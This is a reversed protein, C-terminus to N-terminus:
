TPLKAIGAMSDRVTDAAATLSSREEDLIATFIKRCEGPDAATGPQNPDELLIGVLREAGDLRGWLYDNERFARDFFAAFHFLGTGKLKKGGDSEILTADYPSVRVVEVHDRENVDQLAQVPFVLIDWFPFGLYRVLLDVIVSRNWKASRSMLDAYLAQELVAVHRRVAEGVTRRLQDLDAYHYSAYATDRNRAATRVEDAPFARDLAARGTGAAISIVLADLEALHQYLRAKASDLEARTPYGPKGVERYWWNFAAIVFHIRRTQYDLDVDALFRTQETFNEPIKVASGVPNLLGANIAWDSAVTEIFRAPYSDDPFGLRDAIMAAYRKLTLRLRLRRYTAHAFGAAREAEAEIMSRVTLLKAAPFGGTMADLDLGARTVAALVEDRIRDFSVEIIDRIRRVVRNRESLSNLNDLVPQSAPITSLGAWITALWSPTGRDGGSVDGAPASAPGPKPPVPDPEIYLLRRVVEFAAPKSKIARIALDFPYNNLVGGDVFCSRRPDVENMRYVAFQRAALTSLEPRRPTMCREYGDFTLPPFAGPFSSTARAAFALVDNGRADFDTERSADHRFQLVHRHAVDTVIRPDYIPLERRYGQFDTTTVFLDLSQDDPLLTAPAPYSSPTRDMTEFADYLWRCMDDGRLPTGHIASKLFLWPAKLRLPLWTPGAALQKIDGREFWLIKLADQSRNLAIAKALCIGNIGGASTGSIIDVVVRTRLGAGHGAEGREMRHLLEWYAHESHAPPFPNTPSDYASSALLLNHIEKTIGHMYIALSVGGYCVLSLRLERMGSETVDARATAAMM